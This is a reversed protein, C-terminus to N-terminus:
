EFINGTNPPLSDYLASHPALAFSRRRVKRCLPVEASSGDPALRLLVCCPRVEQALEEFCLWPPREWFSLFAPHGPLLTQGVGKAPPGTRGTQDVEQIRGVM